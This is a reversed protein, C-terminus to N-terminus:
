NRQHLPPAMAALHETVEERVVFALLNLLQIRVNLPIRATFDHHVMKTPM